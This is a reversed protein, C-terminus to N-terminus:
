ILGKRKLAQFVTIYKKNLIESIEKISFDKSLLVVAKDTWKKAIKYKIGM